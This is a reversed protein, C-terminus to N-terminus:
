RKVIHWGDFPKVTACNPGGGRGTGPVRTELVLRDDAVAKEVKGPAIDRLPIKLRRNWESGANGAHIGIGIYIFRAGKNGQVFPGAFDYQGNVDKKLRVTLSFAM